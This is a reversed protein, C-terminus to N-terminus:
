MVSPWFPKNPVFVRTYQAMLKLLFHLTTFVAVTDMNGIIWKRSLKHILANCWVLGNLSPLCLCELKNQRKMLQYFIFQKSYPEQSRTLQVENKRALSNCQMLGFLSTLSLFELEDPGNMLQSSFSTNQIRIGYEGCKM